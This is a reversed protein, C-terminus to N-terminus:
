QVAITVGAQTGTGQSSSSGGLYVVNSHLPDVAIASSQTGTANMYNPIPNPSGVGSMQVWNAGAPYEFGFPSIVPGSRWVAEVDECTIGPKVVALATDLGEVVRLALDRYSRPPEGLYITRSVPAHYRLARRPPPQAQVAKVEELLRQSRRRLEALTLGAEDDGTARCSRARSSAGAM